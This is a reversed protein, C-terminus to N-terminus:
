SAMAMKDLDATMEIEIAPSQQISQPQPLEEELVAGNNGL